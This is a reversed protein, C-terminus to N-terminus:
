GSSYKSEYYECLSSGRNGIQMLKEYPNRLNTRICYVNVVVTKYFYSLESYFLAAMFFISFISVLFLLINLLNYYYLPYYINKRWGVAGSATKVRFDDLAKPFSDISKFAKLM